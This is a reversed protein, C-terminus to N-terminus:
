RMSTEPTTFVRFQGWCNRPLEVIEKLEVMRDICATMTFSDGCVGDTAEQARFAGAEKLLGKVQDRVKIFMEQGSETFLEKKQINYNYSM